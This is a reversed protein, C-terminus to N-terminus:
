AARRQDLVNQRQTGLQLHDVRVCSTNHCRHRVVKGRPISGHALAWAVRHARRTLRELRFLGYGHPTRYGNWDHCTATRTVFRAFRARVDAIADRAIAIRRATRM